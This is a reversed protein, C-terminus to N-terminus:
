KRWEIAWFPSKSRFKVREPFNFILKATTTGKFIDELTYWGDKKIATYHNRWTTRRLHYKDAKFGDILIWHLQPDGENYRFEQVAIVPTSQILSQQILLHFNEATEPTLNQISSFKDNKKIKLKFLKATKSDFDKVFEQKALNNKRSFVRFEDALALSEKLRFAPKNRNPISHLRTYDLKTDISVIPKRYYTALKLLASQSSQQIPANVDVIIRDNTLPAVSDFEELSRPMTLTLVEDSYSIGYKNRAYARVYYKRGPKCGLARGSYRDRHYLPFFENNITPKPSGGYCFGYDTKMPEGRFLVSMDVKFSTPLVESIGDLKVKPVLSYKYQSGSLKQPTLELKFKVYDSTEELIEFSMGGDLLNPLRSSPNTMKSFEKRGNKLSFLASKPNLKVVGKCYPDDTRYTYCMDPTGLFPSKLTCNIVSVMLGKAGTIGLPAKEGSLYELCYFYHPHSSPIFCGVPKDGAPNLTRKYLTYEGSQTYHPHNKESILASYIYRCYSPGCPGYAMSLCPNGGVGDYPETGHYFDPAGLLHGLEHCFTSGKSKSLQQPISNPWLPDGWKVRPKYFNEAFDKLEVYKKGKYTGRMKLKNYKPQIVKKLLPKNNLENCYIYYLVHPKNGSKMNVGKEAAATKFAYQKAEERLKKLM